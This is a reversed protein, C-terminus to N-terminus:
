DIELVDSAGAARPSGARLTTLVHEVKKDDDVGSTYRWSYEVPLTVSCQLRITTCKRSLIVNQLTSTVNQDAAAAANVRANFIGTTDTFFCGAIYKSTQCGRVNTIARLHFIIMRWQVKEGM